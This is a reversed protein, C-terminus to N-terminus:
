DPAGSRRLGPPSRTAHQHVAEAPLELQDGIKTAQEETLTMQGLLAATSWEKSQGLTKALQSWKLKKQIKAKVILATVEDPRIAM